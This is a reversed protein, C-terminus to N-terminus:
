RIAGLELLKRRMDEVTNDCVHVSPHEHLFEQDNAYEDAKRGSGKILLVRWFPDTKGLAAWRQIDREAVPGGNYVTLLGQWQLNRLADCINVCEKVM